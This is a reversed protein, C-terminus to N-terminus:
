REKPDPTPMLREFISRLQELEAMDLQLLEPPPEYMGEHLQRRVKAGRATLTVRKVRRDEPDAARAALGRSELRDVVWTANSADCAWEEALARMVKGEGQELSALARADNPTLDLRELVRDRQGRTRMFFHFCRRWAEAALAEKGRPGTGPM